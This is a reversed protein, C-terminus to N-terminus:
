SFVVMVGREQKMKIPVLFPDIKNISLDLDDKEELSNCYSPIKCM